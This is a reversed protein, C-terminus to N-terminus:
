ELTPKVWHKFSVRTQLNISKPAVLWVNQTDESLTPVPSNLYIPCTIKVGKDSKAPFSTRIQLTLVSIPPIFCIWHDDAMELSLGSVLARSIDGRVPPCVM